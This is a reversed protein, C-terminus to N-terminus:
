SMLMNFLIPSLPDGQKVGKQLRIERTSTGGLRITTSSSEMNSAIYSILTKPIGAKVLFEIVTKHSVTNFAKTIDVSVVAFTKNDTRHTRMYNDVILCNDLTSDINTFIRHFFRLITSTVTIPRWNAPDQRNGNKYILSTRAQKARPLQYNGLLLCSLLTALTKDDASMVREVQLGDTKDCQVHNASM